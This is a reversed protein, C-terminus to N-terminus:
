NMIKKSPPKTDVFDVDTGPVTYRDLTSTHDDTYQAVSEAARKMLEKTVHDETNEIFFKAKEGMSSLVINSIWVKVEDDVYDASFEMVMMFQLASATPKTRTVPKPKTFLSRLKDIFKM